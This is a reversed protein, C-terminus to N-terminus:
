GSDSVSGSGTKPLLDFRRRLSGYAVAAVFADAVLVEGYAERLIFPRLDILVGLPGAEGAAAIGAFDQEPGLRGALYPPRDDLPFAQSAQQSRETLDPVVNVM